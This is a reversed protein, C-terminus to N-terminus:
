KKIVTGIGCVVRHVECAKSALYTCVRGYSERYNRLFPDMPVIGCGIEEAILVIKENDQCIREALKLLEEQEMGEEMCRRIYDAFHDIGGCSFIAAKECQRGDIWTLAPFQEKGYALKGQFVGGIIMKM